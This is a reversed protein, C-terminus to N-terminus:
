KHNLFFYYSLLIVNTVEHLLLFPTLKRHKAITANNEPEAGAIVAFNSGIASVLQVIRSLESETGISCM